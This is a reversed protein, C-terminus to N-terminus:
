GKWEARSYEIRSKCAETGVPDSPSRRMSTLAPPVTRHRRRGQESGGERDEDSPAPTRTRHQAPRGRQVSPTVPQLCPAHCTYAMPSLSIGIWSPM